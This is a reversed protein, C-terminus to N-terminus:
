VADLQEGAGAQLLQQHPLNRADGVLASDERAAGAVDVRLGAQVVHPPQHKLTSEALLQPHMDALGERRLAGASEHAREVARFPAAEDGEAGPERQRVHAHVGLVRLQVVCAHDPLHHVLDDPAVAVFGHLQLPVLEGRSQLAAAVQGDTRREHHVDVAVLALHQGVGGAVEALPGPGRGGGHVSAYAGRGHRSNRVPDLYEVADGLIAYCGDPVGKAVVAGQKQLEVREEPAVPGPRNVVHVRQVVERVAVSAHGTEKVNEDSEKDSTSRSLLLVSM